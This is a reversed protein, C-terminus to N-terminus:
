AVRDFVSSVRISLFSITPIITHTAPRPFIARLRLGLRKSGVVSPYSVVENGHTRRGMRYPCSGSSHPFDHSSIPFVFKIFLIQVSLQSLPSIEPLVTSTLPSLMRNILSLATWPPTLPPLVNRSHSTMKNWGYMHITTILYVAMLDDSILFNSQFIGYM